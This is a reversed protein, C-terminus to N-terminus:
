CQGNTGSRSRSLIAITAQPWGLSSLHAQYAQVDYAARRHEISGSDADFIAFSAESNYDRPQGVSGPNVIFGDGSSILMPHHTHGFLYYDGHTARISSLSPSDPYLYTEEDWPSAHRVRLRKGGTELNIEVPLQRIWDLWQEHLHSRTWDTRYLEKKAPDPALQGIVYADHNGRIVLADLACLMQCVENADPYYGVVDGICVWRDVRPADRLVAELAPKNGHIDALLGLRM